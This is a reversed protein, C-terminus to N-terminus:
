KKKKRWVEWKPFCVFVLQMHTHLKTITPRMELHHSCLPDCPLCSSFRCSQLGAFWCSASLLTHPLFPASSFYEQGRNQGPIRQMNLELICVTSRNNATLKMWSIRRIGLMRHFALERQVTQEQQVLIFSREPCRKVMKESNCQEWFLASKGQKQGNWTKMKLASAAKSLQVSQRQSILRLM